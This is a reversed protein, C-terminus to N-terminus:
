LLPSCFSLVPMASRYEPLVRIELGSCLAFMNLVNKVSTKELGSLEGLSCTGGGGQTTSWIGGILTPLAPTKFSRSLMLSLLAVPGSPRGPSRRLIHACSIAPM